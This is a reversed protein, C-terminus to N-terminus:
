NGLYIITFSIVFVFDNKTLHLRTQCERFFGDLCSNSCIALTEATPIRANPTNPNKIEM